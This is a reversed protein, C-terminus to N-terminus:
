AALNALSPFERVRAEEPIDASPNLLVTDIFIALRRLHAATSPEVQALDHARLRAVREADRGHDVYLKVADLVIEDAESM